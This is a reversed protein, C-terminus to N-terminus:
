GQGIIIHLTKGFIWVDVQNWRLDPQNWGKLMVVGIKKAGYIIVHTDDCYQSGPLPGIFLGTTHIPAGLEDLADANSGVALLAEQYCRDGNEHIVPAFLFIAIVALASAPVLIIVMWSYGVGKSPPQSVCRTCTSSRQGADIPSGCSPCFNTKRIDSIAILLTMFFVLGVDFFSFWSFLLTSLTGIIVFLAQCIILYTRKHASKWPFKFLIFVCAYIVIAIVYGIPNTM